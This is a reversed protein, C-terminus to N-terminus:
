LYCQKEIQKYYDFHWKISTLCYTYLLILILICLYLYTVIM